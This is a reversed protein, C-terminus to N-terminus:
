NCRTSALRRVYHKRHPRAATRILRRRIRHRQPASLFGVRHLLRRRAHSKWYVPYALFSYGKPLVNVTKLSSASVARCSFALYSFTACVQLPHFHLVPCSINNSQSWDLTSLARMM